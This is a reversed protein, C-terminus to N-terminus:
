PTVPPRGTDSALASWVGLVVFIIGLVVSNWMWTEGASGYVWPSIIFWIGILAIVWSAWQGARGSYRAIALIVVVIGGIIGNLKNGANVGGIWASLLIYLGALFNLGSAVRVQNFHRNPHFHQPHAAHTM